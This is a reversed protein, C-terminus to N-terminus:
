NKTDATWYEDLEEKTLSFPFEPAGEAILYGNIQLQYPTGALEPYKQTVLRFLMEFNEKSENSENIVRILTKVESVMESFIGILRSDPTTSISTRHDADDTETSPAFSLEESSVFDVEEPQAAGMIDYDPIHLDGAAANTLSPQKGSLKLIATYLEARYFNLAVYLYYVAALLTISVVYTFWSIQHLMANPKQRLEM